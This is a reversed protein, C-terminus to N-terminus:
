FLFIGPIHELSELFRLGYNGWCLINYRYHVEGPSDRYFSSDVWLIVVLLILPPYVLPLNMRLMLLVLRGAVSVSGVPHWLLELM